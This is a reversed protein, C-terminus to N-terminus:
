QSVPPIFSVLGLEWGNMVTNMCFGPEASSYRTSAKALLTMGASGM